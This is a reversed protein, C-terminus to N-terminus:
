IFLGGVKWFKQVTVSNDRSVFIQCRKLEMEQTQRSLHHVLDSMSCVFKEIFLFYINSMKIGLTNPVM